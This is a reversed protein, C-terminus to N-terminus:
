LLSRMAVVLLGFVLPIVIWRNHGGHIRINIKMALLFPISLLCAHRMAQAESAFLKLDELMVFPVFWSVFLMLMEFGSAFVVENHESYYLKLIVWIMVFGSLTPYYTTIWSPTQAASIEYFILLSFIALYISGHLISKNASSTKWSFAALLISLLVLLLAQGSNLLLLPAFMAPIFLAVLIGIGVPRATTRLLDGLRMRWIASWRRENEPLAISSNRREELSLVATSRRRNKIPLVITNSRREQFDSCFGLSPLAYVIGFVLSGFGILGSFIVWDPQKKLAIALLGFILTVCYIIIVVVPHPLGLQLLRHHLHTRDPLFPSHGCVVRRSMVLLTDLLPLAVVMALSAVPLASESQSLAVLLVALVYGLMLSGSDGMFMKAPYSNERLFGVTTGFLSVAIILLIGNGAVWAFYGFFMSAIVALGGALGDLGDSLNFANMGGVMCFVTFAFSWTGTLEINGFGVLNGIHEIKLGSLYVFLSAALIQGVFKYRPSIELLDDIIGTAVTVVLGLLFALNIDDMPLYLLCAIALSLSMALGGMRPTATDHSSRSKPIDIAGIKFALRYAVPVLLMSLFITTFLILGISEFNIEIM